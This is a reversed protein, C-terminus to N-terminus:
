DSAKAVASDYYNKFCVSEQIDSMSHVEAWEGLDISFTTVSVEEDTSQKLRQDLSDWERAFTQLDPLTTIIKVAARIPGAILLVLLLLWGIRATFTSTKHRFEFQSSLGMLYGVVALTAMLVTQPVVYARAQPMDSFVYIAPLFSANILLFGVLCTMGILKLRHRYFFLRQSITLSQFNLAIAAFLTLTLLPAIPSLYGLSTPLFLFSGSLTLLILWPLSLMPPFYAQRIANGPAQAIIGVAIM